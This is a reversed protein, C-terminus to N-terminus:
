RGAVPSRTAPAEGRRGRLVDMYQHVFGPDLQLSKDRGRRRGRHRVGRPIRRHLDPEGGVVETIPSSSSWGSAADHRYRHLDLSRAPPRHPRVRAGLKVLAERSLDKYRFDPDFPGSYDNQGGDPPVTEEPPVTM